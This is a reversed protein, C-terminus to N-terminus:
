SLRRSRYAEDQKHLKEMDCYQTPRADRPLTKKPPNVFTSTKWGKRFKMNEYTGQTLWRCINWRPRKNFRRLSKEWNRYRTSFHWVVSLSIM